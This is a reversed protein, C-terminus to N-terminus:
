GDVWGAIAKRNWPIHRPCNEPPYPQPDGAITYTRGDRLRHIRCGRLSGEFSKPWHTAFQAHVGHLRMADDVDDTDPSDFLVGHVTYPEWTTVEDKNADYTVRPVLLEVTEGKFM